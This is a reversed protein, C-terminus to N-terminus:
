RVRPMRFPLMLRVIRSTLRPVNLSEHVSTVREGLLTSSLVSRVYFPTDELTRQVVAPTGPETRIARDVRWLTSPLSQRPPASFTEAAGDRGFRLALLRDPAHKQRVDYIVATRGDRLAARSWDWEAFPRDIPEDGENSDFYAEGQWRLSPQQMEVEIRACPAIPGWRHRGSDDLPAVFRSLGAPHLRVRGRVRSPIPATVEDIDVTLCDGNWSVASPGVVFADTGRVVSARSRETMTWRNGRNGYLAVNLACFNEPEADGRALSWAYYPSFVSGM